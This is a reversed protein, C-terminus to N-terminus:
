LNDLPNKIQKLQSSSVHTYLQTTNLSSHGLLAQIKRIDVGNELLHTAFSHRITHVHVTKSLNANKAAKQVIKQINRTTLPKDESFLHKWNPNKKIFKELKKILNKSLIFMRDKKGKGGRVWGINETFIISEPKLNVLESVRLGSSYLVELILKSKLTKASNILSNIEQKTM